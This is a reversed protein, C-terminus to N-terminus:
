PTIAPAPPSPTGDIRRLEGRELDIAVIRLEDLGVRRNPGYSVTPTLGTPFGSLGELTDVLTARTVSRGVRTLAEVLLKAATLSALQAPRQAKPLAHADVLRQYDRLASPSLDEPTWSYAAFLRGQLQRPLAFPDGIALAGPVLVFPPAGRRRVSALTGLLEVTLEAPGLVLVLAPDLAVLPESALAASSGAAIPLAHGELGAKAWRSTVEQALSGEPERDPHVVVARMREGERAFGVALEALALAQAPIGGDVYFVSRAPPTGPAPFSTAAGVVPIGAEALWRALAPDGGLQPAVLAFRPAGAFFAALQEEAPATPSLSLVELELRRGFVGGRANIEAFYAQLAAAAAAASPSGEWQVTALAISDDDIGAEDHGGLTQLYAVLSTMDAHSMRYRPMTTLLSNGSPDVGLAIAKRLSHTDYAAHERRNEGRGGYPKTLTDWTINSPKMGGEPRGRGDEGHCGVCPLTIANVVVDGDLEAEIAGGSPSKGTTFIQKGRAVALPDPPAHSDEAVVPVAEAPPERPGAGECASAAPALSVLVALVRAIPM